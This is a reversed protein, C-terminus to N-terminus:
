NYRQLRAVTQYYNYQTELFDRRAGLFFNLEQMYTLFNIQGGDFAKRLLEFNSDDNMVGEYQDLLERYRLAKEYDGSMNASLKILELEQQMEVAQYQLEAAKVKKRGTLFPLSVSVSFGNFRDGMEWEHNYSLAFGPLLARKEVKVLSKQADAQAKMAAIAPDKSRLNGVDPRLAPLDVDPYTDGLTEALASVDKGGNLIQLSALLSAYEGRLSKLEREAAIKEIVAKNYDLRTENGEEVAKKFISMMSELGDCIKETASIRQRTYIIDILM